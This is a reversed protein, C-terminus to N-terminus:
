DAGGMVLSQEIRGLADAIDSARTAVTEVRSSMIVIAGMLNRKEEDTWSASKDKGDGDDRFEGTPEPKVTRADDKDEIDDPAKVARNFAAALARAMDEVSEPDAEFKIVVKAMEFNASNDAM